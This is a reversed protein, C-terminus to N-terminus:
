IKEIEQILKSLRKKSTHEEFFRKQGKAAIIERENDNKLYFKTKDSAEEITEYTIIEKHPEFFKEINDVTETIMLSGACPIEFLRQKMQRKKQPDNYNVTM